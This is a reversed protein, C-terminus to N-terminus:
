IQMDTPVNQVSCMYDYVCVHAMEALYLALMYMHSMIYSNQAVSGACEFVVNKLSKCFNLLLLSLAAVGLNLGAKFLKLTNTHQIVGFHIYKKQKELWKLALRSAASPSNLRKLTLLAGPGRGFTDPSLTLTELKQAVGSM